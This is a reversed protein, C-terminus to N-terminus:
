GIAQHVPLLLWGCALLGDILLVALINGDVKGLIPPIGQPDHLTGRYWRKIMLAGWFGLTMCFGIIAAEHCHELANPGDGWILLIALGSIALQSLAAWVLHFRAHGTWAPHFLHTRNMDVVWPGLGYALTAITLILRAHLPITIAESDFKPRRARRYVLRKNAGVADIM